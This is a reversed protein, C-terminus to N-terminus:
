VVHRRQEAQAAVRPREQGLDAVSASVTQKAGCFPLELLAPSNLGLQRQDAVKM